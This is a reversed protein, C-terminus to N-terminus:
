GDENDFELISWLPFRAPLFEHLSDPILRAMPKICVCWYVLNVPNRDDTGMPSITLLNNAFVRLGEDLPVVGSM